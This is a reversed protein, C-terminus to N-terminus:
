LYPRITHFITFIIKRNFYNKSIIQKFKKTISENGYTQKKAM